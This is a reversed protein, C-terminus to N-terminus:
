KREEYLEITIGGNETDYFYLIYKLTVTKEWCTEWWFLEWMEQRQWRFCPARLLTIPKSKKSCAPLDRIGNGILGDPEENSRIRLIVRPDVWGRVSNLVLFRGPLLPSAARLASLRVAMLLRITYLVHSVQSRVVKHTEVGVEFSLKLIQGM